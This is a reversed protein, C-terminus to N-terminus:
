LWPMVLENKLKINSFKKFLRKLTKETYTFRKFNQLKRLDYTKQSSESKWLTGLKCMKEEDEMLNLLAGM